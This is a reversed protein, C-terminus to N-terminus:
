PDLVCRETSRAFLPSFYPDLTSQTSWRKQLRELEGTFRAIQDPRDDRGRSRSERHLLRAEMCQINKLGRAQLRLCFDVDNFAVAFAAEDLGGVQWYARHRVVLCAATVASVTRTVAHWSHHARADPRVGRAIHGAAGGMGIAVGAHQIDGDPYLLLAGVAGVDPRAAHRVMASLWHGDLAEVDNNLLCLLEGRALKAARNNLASFNFPGDDRLVRARQRTQADALIALAQPDRSGNDIIIIETDGPYALQALSALCAGILEPKDRTPILISVMPWAQPDPPQVRAFGPPGAAADIRWGPMHAALLPGPWSGAAAADLGADRGAQRHALVLPVHMPEGAGDALMLAVTALADGMTGSPLRALMEAAADARLACGSGVMNGALHLLRDWNPKIWPDDAGGPGSGDEDWYILSANGARTVAAALTAGLHPSVTCGAPLVVLWGGPGIRALAEALAAHDQRADARMVQTAPGLAAVLSARAASGDDVDDTLVLAAVGPVVMKRAAMSAPNGVPSAACWRAVHAHEAHRRWWRHYGPNAAAIACLRNWGRVRLGRAVTFLAPLAAAADTALALAALARFAAGSRWPPQKRSM